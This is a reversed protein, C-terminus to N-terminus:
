IHQEYINKFNFDKVKMVRLTNGANVNLYDKEQVRVLRDSSLKSKDKSLLWCVSSKRVVMEKGKTNAVVVFPSDEDLCISDENKKNVNYDRM